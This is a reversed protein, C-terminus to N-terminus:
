YSSPHQTVNIRLPLINSIYNQTPTQKVSALIDIYGFKVMGSTNREIKFQVVWMYNTQYQVTVNSIQVESAGAYLSFGSAPISVNLDKLEVVAFVERENPEIVTIDGFDAGQTFEVKGTM